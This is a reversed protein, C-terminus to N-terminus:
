FYFYVAYEKNWINFEDVDIEKYAVNMTRLGKNSFIYNHKHNQSLYDESSKSISRLVDDAGKMFLFIKNQEDKVIVSMRKRDSDFDFSYLQKYIKTKGNIKLTIDNDSSKSVYIYSLYRCGNIIAKEDLSSCYYKLKNNEECHVVVSHCLSLAM